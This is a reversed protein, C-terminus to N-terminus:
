QIRVGVKARNRNHVDDASQRGFLFPANMVLDLPGSGAAHADVTVTAMVSAILWCYVIRKMTM